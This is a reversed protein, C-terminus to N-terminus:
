CDVLNLNISDIGSLCLLKHRSTHGRKISIQSKSIKLTKALFAILAENAKGQDPVATIYIKLEDNEWGAIKNASANPVIKVALTIM